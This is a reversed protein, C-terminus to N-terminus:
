LYSKAILQIIATEVNGLGSFLNRQLIREVGQQDRAALRELIELHETQTEELRGQSKFDIERFVFIRENIAKMEALLLQNGYAATLSTHFAEDLEALQGHTLDQKDEIDSWTHYLSEYVDQPLGRQSLGRVIHMELAFRFEYLEEIEKIHLQKVRFGRRPLHVVLGEAVLHSLAQRIPSRSVGYMECLTEEILQFDPPYDWAVIKRRLDQVVSKDLGGSVTNKM